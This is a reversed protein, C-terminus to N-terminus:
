SPPLPPAGGEPPLRTRVGDRSAAPAERARRRLRRLNVFFVGAAVVIFGVGGYLLVSLNGGSAPPSPAAVSIALPTGRLASYPLLACSTGPGVTQSYPESWGASGYYLFGARLIGGPVTVCVQVTAGNATLPSASVDFYTANAFGPTPIGAPLGALRETVTLASSLEGMGTFVLTVGTLAEQDLSGGGRVFVVTATAVALANGNFFLLRSNGTDAVWVGGSLPDLTVGDPGRLARATTGPGSGVPAPQGLVLDAPSGDVIPLPYRVVRNNQEDAVWLEGRPDVAVGSPHDLAGPGSGAGGSALNTQGVVGSASMGTTFPPAFSVVRNNGTDAVYLTGNADFALADPFALSGSGTGPLSGSFNSQGLVAVAAQGTTFPPTFELVRSHLEDAVWLDGHPDFAVGGPLWLSRADPHTETSTFNPQGIVVSAAMGTAFPPVFELLRNNATDSVWLSGDRAFAISEPLYLHRAGQGNLSDNLDGQGLVVTAREGITLPPPFELVRNDYADVVWLDGSTDFSSQTSRGLNSATPATTSVGFGSQGIVLGAAAGNRLPLVFALVRSNSFEPVYLRGDPGVLAGAPNSMGTASTRATRSTFNAQGLVLAAQSTGTVPGPFELVRNNNTDGVWLNGRPDFSLYNPGYFGAAGLGPSNSRFDPQGLVLTANEGTSFPPSFALIRNNNADGVWLRGLADFAIGFPGEFHDAGTGGASSGFGPQGIVLTAPMGSMFPPVFETIRNNLFEAVWLDGLPGFTVEVPGNMATNSSGGGSTTFSLQGLVLSAAMGDAVPPVYEVGRNNLADAGWLDGAADFALAAPEDLTRASTGPMNSTFNGQGLVLTASMSDTFPPVFELVRNNAYDAVWLDGQGDFAVANSNSFTSANVLAPGSTFNQKGLVSSANMGTSFHAAPLAGETAAGTPSPSTARPPSAAPVVVSSALLLLLLIVIAVAAHGRSSM